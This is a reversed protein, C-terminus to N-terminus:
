MASPSSKQPGEPVVVGNAKAYEEWLVLLDRLLAPKQDSRDYLEAPDRDLRYLRWTGAGFPPPMWLLKWPGRRLAREGALEFGLWAHPGAKARRKGALLPLLSAGQLPAVARGRYTTPHSVQALALFTPTLDTVHLIAHSLKGREAVGPGSVILPSRIGGEAMTGKFLRFPLMGVQAWAPGYEVFSGKRGWNGFDSDPFQQAYWERDRSDMGAPGRDGPETGNDSLVVVLTDDYEGIARLRDLLRGLHFDLNEVMAAYLEMKRAQERRQDESLDKWAPVTPIGPYPHVSQPLLGARKMRLLRLGRVADYGRDYRGASRDRWDDPVALPGHPAQYALYAFFPRGDGRNEEIRRIIFDTFTRTSFYDTPLEAVDRGDETYRARRRGPIASSMDDWHSAAGDHLAFCREFGRAAPLSQPGEGLEWKGAMYTHYGADKLLSAVTVVHGNLRGEYGPRGEQNPALRRGVNGFGAIHHDVGTLLMARSPAGRPSVYFDTARLGSEALADLRPTPIESGYAGLDSYGLDDAVVLLINPRERTRVPTEPFLCGGLALGAATVVGIRLAAKM